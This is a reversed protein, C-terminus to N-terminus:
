IPNNIYEKYKIKLEEKSKLIEKYKLKMKKSIQFSNLGNEYFNLIKVNRKDLSLCFDNYNDIKEYAFDPELITHFGDYQNYLVKIEYIEPFRVNKFYKSYIGTREFIGEDRLHNKIMNDVITYIWPKLPRCKDYLHLNNFIQISAKSLIEQWDYESLHYKARYRIIAKKIWNFLYRHNIM